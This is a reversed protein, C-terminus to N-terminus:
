FAPSFRAIERREPTDVLIGPYESDEADLRDLDHGRLMAWTQDRRGEAFTLGHRAVGWAAQPTGAGWISGAVEALCDAAAARGDSAALLDAAEIAIAAAENARKTSALVRGRRALLQGRGADDAPLLALAMALVDAVEELAGAREARGAAALCYSVGREAGPLAASQYYQRAIEGAYREDAGYVQEMAAAIQRHLRVRRRANLGGYLTHRVVAHTFEYAHSDVTSKLLQAALVQDLVNLAATEELGAVQAAIGFRGAETVLAAAGMLRRAAEGLRGLRREIVQRGTDPIRMAEVAVATSWGGGENVLTGEEVLHLLVERIFFPNGSTE